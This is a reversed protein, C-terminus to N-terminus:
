ARRSRREMYRPRRGPSEGEPAIRKAFDEVAINMAAYDMEKSEPITTPIEQVMRAPKNDKVTPPPAAHTSLVFPDNEPRRNNSGLGSAGKMWGFIGLSSRRKHDKNNSTYARPMSSSPSFGTEGFSHPLTKCADEGKGEAYTPASAAFDVGGPSSAYGDPQNLRGPKAPALQRAKRVIPAPAGDDRDDSSFAPSNNLRRTNTSRSFFLPKLSLKRRRDLDPVQRSAPGLSRLNLTQIAPLDVDRVTSDISHRRGLFSSQSPARAGVLRSDAPVPGSRPTSSGDKKPRTGRAAEVWEQPSLPPSSSPTNDSVAQKSPSYYQQEMKSLVKELGDGNLFMDGEGFGARLGHYTGRGPLPSSAYPLSNLPYFAPSQVREDSSHRPLTAESANPDLSDSIRSQGSSRRATLEDASRPRRLARKLALVEDLHSKKEGTNSGNSGPAYATSMTDPTPPLRSSGFVSDVQTRQSSSHFLSSSEFSTKEAAKLTQLTPRSRKPVDVGYADPQPQIWCDIRVSENQPLSIESEETASMKRAPIKLEDFVKRRGPSDPPKLESCESLASLRPSGPEITENVSHYSESKTLDSPPPHPPEPAPVYLSRLVATNRHEERLFSPAKKLLRSSSTKLYHEPFVTGKRSSTREPIDFTATRPTSADAGDGTSPRATSPRSSDKGAELEEVRAELQCILDVAETVAQDRKDIEQRLEENSERLRQNDEEADRLEQLEEELDRMRHLEEEMEIMRELKKELATMQQARHFIELKLDFNQKNIKSVYQDMERVGMERSQKLGAALAMQAKRERESGADDQSQSQAQSQPQSQSQSRSRSRRPTQTQPTYSEELNESAPGRSGRSARQEKLLDQLLSSSPNVLSAASSPEPTRSRHTQATRPSSHMSSPENSWSMETSSRSPSDMALSGKVRALPAPQPTSKTKPNPPHRLSPSPRTQPTSNPSSYLCHRLSSSPGSISSRRHSQRDMNQDM